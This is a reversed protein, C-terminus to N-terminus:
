AAPQLMVLQAARQRSRPGGAQGIKLDQRQMLVLQTIGHRKLPQLRACKLLQLLHVDLVVLHPVSPPGSQLRCCGPRANPRSNYLGPVHALRFLRILNMLLSTRPVEAAKQAQGHSADPARSAGVWTGGASVKNNKCSVPSSGPFSSPKIDNGRMLIMSMDHSGALAEPQRSHRQSSCQTRARQLRRQGAVTPQAGSYAAAVMSSCREAQQRSWAAAGRRRSGHGHQRVQGGAAATLLKVPPRSGPQPMFVVTGLM